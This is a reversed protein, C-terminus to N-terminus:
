RADRRPGRIRSVVPTSRRLAKLIPACGRARLAGEASGSMGPRRQPWGDALPPRNSLRAQRRLESWAPRPTSAERVVQKFAGDLLRVEDPAHRCHDAAALRGLSTKAGLLVLAQLPIRGAGPRM